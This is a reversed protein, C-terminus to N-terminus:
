RQTAQFCRCERAAHQRDYHAAYRENLVVAAADGRKRAHEAAQRYTDAFPCRTM